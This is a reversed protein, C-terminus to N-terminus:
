HEKQKEEETPKKKRQRIGRNPLEKNAAVAAKMAATLQPKANPESDAGNLTADENKKDEENTPRLEKMMSRIFVAMRLFPLFVFHLLTPIPGIIITTALAVVGRLVGM